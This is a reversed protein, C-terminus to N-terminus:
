NQLQMKQKQNKFAHVQLATLAATNVIEEVKCTRQLVHAPRRVGMLFPGIVIAKGLTQLLKYAINGADLNPFVLINAEKTLESVPFIRDRIASSIAVDAQMEGDVELDPFRNKVIEAAQKMKKPNEGSATFSSYSLMAIHPKYDFYQAVEAAYVAIEALQEKNPNINLTTDALFLVRNDILLITLGAVVGSKAAGITKLVPKVADKYNQSAGTIIADADGRNVAMSAYYYPDSMLRTAENMTVGKRKRSNYFEAVYDQFNDSQSPHIIEVEELNKLDLEKIKAKVQDPYGVLVPTAINEEIIEQAAKLVRESTADPFIIRVNGNLKSSGHVRNIASRIFGKAGGLQAELQDRYAQFDEIPEQAVGSEQAAKAVAPAVWMLVRPDFPKPIIYEPGFRFTEDSYSQSVSEPVDERALKAIAKVAALKMEENIKKARVDLAGRFIFPFGLVNNVQNPFDSRGTAM